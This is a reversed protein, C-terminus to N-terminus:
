IILKENICDNILNYKAKGEQFMEKSYFVNNDEASHDNYLIQTFFPCTKTINDYDWKNGPM